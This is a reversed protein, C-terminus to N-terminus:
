KEEALRRLVIAVAIDPNIVIAAAIRLVSSSVAVVM